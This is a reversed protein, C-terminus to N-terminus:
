ALGGAPKMLLPKGMPVDTCQEPDGMLRDTLEESTLAPDPSTQRNRHSVGDLHQAPRRTATVRAPHRFLCM